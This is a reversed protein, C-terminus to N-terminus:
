RIDDGKYPILNEVYRASSPPHPTYENTAPRRRKVMSWADRELRFVTGLGVLSVELMQANM